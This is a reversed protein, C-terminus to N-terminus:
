KPEFVEVTLDDIFIDGPGRHWVYIKVPDGLTRVEPTMYDMSIKNWKGREFPINQNKFSVARYKYPRGEYNFHVVLLSEDEEPIGPKFIWVSVRLWAYYNNTIERFPFEIAKSYINKADLKFSYKGQFAFNTDLYQPDYRGSEEFGESIFLKHHYKEENKLVEISENSRDVLLLDKNTKDPRIVFFSDLYYEKTMRYGDIIGRFTQWSKFLNLLLLLMLLIIITNRIPKKQSLTWVLFCALPIAMIAHVQVFARWGYAVLSSYSAILYVNALFFLLVALFIEKKRKFLHYFGITAILMMQSYIYLGKRFGFLVYGFRPHSFDLGSQPDDYSNYIWQGSAMKWYILQPLVMLGTFLLILMVDKRRKWILLLKDRLSDPGWIGWFVPILLIFVESPRTILTLGITIGLAIAYRHKPMRHWLATLWLILAYLTFIYIHPADNGWTSFFFVNSGIFIFLLTFATVTDGFSILLAKRLFWVGALTYFIGSIIIAWQYPRSFGDADYDTLQAAAHGGFFFPAYMISIGANFRIVFNNEPTGALQYLSPAGNYKENVQKVWTIDKIAPDDYIFTAPLYLYYGFVDYSLINKPPFALRISAFAVMVLVAMLLSTRHKIKLMEPKM